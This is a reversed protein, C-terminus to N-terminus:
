AYRHMVDWGGPLFRPHLAEVFVQRWRQCFERVGDEGHENLLFEVVQQGHPGHGLLSMKSSHKMLIDRGNTLSTDGPSDQSETGSAITTDPLDKCEADLAASQHEIESCSIEANKKNELALFDVNGQDTELMSTCFSDSPGGKSTNLNSVTAKSDGRHDGVNHHGSWHKFAYGRKKEFRKREHPSMGVLLASELDAESIERGGYYKM